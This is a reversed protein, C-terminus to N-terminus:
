DSVFVSQCLRDALALVVALCLALCIRLALRDRVAPALAAFVVRRLRM